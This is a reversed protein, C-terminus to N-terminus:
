SPTLELPARPTLELPAQCFAGAAGGPGGLTALILPIAIFPGVGVMNSMNISTANLVGLRRVLAPKEGEAM